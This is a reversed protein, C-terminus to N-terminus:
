DQLGCRLGRPHLWTEELGAVRFHWQVGRLIAGDTRDLAAVVLRQLLRKVRLGLPFNRRVRLLSDALRLILRGAILLAETLSGPDRQILRRLLKRLQRLGTLPPQMLRRELQGAHVCRGLFSRPIVERLRRLADLGGAVARDRLEVLGDGFRPRSVFFSCPSM